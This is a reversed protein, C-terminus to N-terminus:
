LSNLRNQLKGLYGSSQADRPNNELHKALGAIARHLPAKTKPKATNVKPHVTRGNVVRPHISQQDKNQQM